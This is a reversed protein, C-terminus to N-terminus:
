PYANVHLLWSDRGLGGHRDKFSHFWVFITTGGFGVPTSTLWESGGVSWSGDM